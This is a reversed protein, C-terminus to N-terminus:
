HRLLTIKANPLDTVLHTIYAPLLDVEHFFLNQGEMSVFPQLVDISALRDESLGKGLYKGLAEKRTWVRLCQEALNTNNKISLVELPTFFEEYETFDITRIEETDVGIRSVKSWAMVVLEGSHSINFDPANEIYPRGFDNQKIHNILEQGLGEKVLSDMLMKRGALFHFRDKEFLFSDHYEQLSTSLSPYVEKLLIAKKQADLYMWLVLIEKM